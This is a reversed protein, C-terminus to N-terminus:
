DAIKRSIKKALKSACDATKTCTIPTDTQEPIPPAQGPLFLQDSSFPENSSGAASSGLPKIWEIQSQALILAALLVLFLGAIIVFKKKM